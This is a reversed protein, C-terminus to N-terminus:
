KKDGLNLTTLLKNRGISTMLLFPFFLINFVDHFAPNKGSFQLGIMRLLGALCTIGYLFLIARTLFIMGM